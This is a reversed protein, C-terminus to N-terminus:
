VFHLTKRIKCLIDSKCSLICFVRVIYVWVPLNLLSAWLIESGTPLEAEVMALPPFPLMLFSCCVTCCYVASGRSCMQLASVTFAHWHDTKDTVLAIVTNQEKEYISSISIIHYRRSRKSHERHLQYRICQKQKAKAHVQSHTDAYVIM